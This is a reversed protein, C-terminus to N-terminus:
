TRIEKEIAAEQGALWDIATLVPHWDVEAERRAQVLHRMARVQEALERHGRYLHLAAADLEGIIRHRNPIGYGAEGALAYALSLHKEACLVCGAAPYISYDAAPKTDGPNAARSHEKCCGM